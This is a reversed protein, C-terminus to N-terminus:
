VWWDFAPENDIKNAKAYEAVEVPNTEKLQKLPLWSTSGDRWEVQLDWCTTTKRKQRRGGKMYYQDAIDVAKKPDKRHDVLERFIQYQNGEEDVQSLLHEALINYAIEERTGDLFEVDYVRSDLIPNKHRRCAGFNGDSNRKRGLVNAIMDGDGHPLIVQASIIPDFGRSDVADEVEPGEVTEPLPEEFSEVIDDPEYQLIRDEDFEGLNGKVESDFEAMKQKLEPYRGYNDPKVPRVTSRAVFRGNSKLVYYCLAQGVNKAKGLWRVLQWRALGTADDQNDPDYMFAWGYFDYDLYESADPTEGRMQELSSRDGLSPRAILERIDSTYMAGLCWLAEPCRNRNMIRRYHSKFAGIELEARNMWPSYPEVFTQPILFHRRVREWETSVGSEEGANDTHIGLEPIGVDRITSNLADGADAKSRM